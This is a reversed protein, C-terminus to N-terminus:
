KTWMHIAWMVLKLFIGSNTTLICQVLWIKKNKSNMRLSSTYTLMVNWWIIKLVNHWIIKEILYTKTWRETMLAHWTQLKIKLLWCRCIYQFFMWLWQAIVWVNIAHARAQIHYCYLKCLICCWSVCYNNHQLLMTGHMFIFSFKTAEYCSFTIYGDTKLFFILTITM